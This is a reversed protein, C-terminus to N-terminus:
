WDGRMYDSYRWRQGSIHDVVINDQTKITRRKDGREGSGIQKARRGNQDSEAQEARMKVLKSALIQLATQRNQYQSRESECRVLIGSPKHKIQIATETKNRHQGGAGSGRCSSIELDRESVTIDKADILPLVAVTITSTHVRGSRETPPVRQWRHGGSENAFLHRAHHGSIVLTTM